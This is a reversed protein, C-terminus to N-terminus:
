FTDNPINVTNHFAVTLKTKDTQRWAVTLSGTYANEHLTITSSKAFIQSSLEPENVNPLRSLYQEHLGTCM